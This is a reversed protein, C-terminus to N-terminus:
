SHADTEGHHPWRWLNRPTWPSDLPSCVTRYSAASATDLCPACKNSCVRTFVSSPSSPAMKLPQYGSMSIAPSSIGAAAYDGADGQERQWERIQSRREKIKGTGD